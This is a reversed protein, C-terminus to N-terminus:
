MLHPWTCLTVKRTNGTHAHDCRTAVGREVLFGARIFASGRTQAVDAAATINGVAEKGKGQALMSGGPHSLGGGKRGPLPLGEGLEPKVNPWLTISLRAKRALIHPQTQAVPLRCREVLRFPVFRARKCGNRRGDECKDAAVQRMVKTKARSNFILCKM